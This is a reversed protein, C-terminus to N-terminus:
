STLFYGAKKISVSPENGGECFGAVPSQRFGIRSMSGQRGVWILTIRGGVGLDECHDRVKPGGVWFGTFVEGRGMRAV